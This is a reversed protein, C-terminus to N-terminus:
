RWRASGGSRSWGVNVQNTPFYLPASSFVGLNPYLPDFAEVAGDGPSDDGSAAGFQLAFRASGPESLTRGLEVAGSWARV